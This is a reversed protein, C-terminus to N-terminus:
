KPAEALVGALAPKPQLARDWLLPYNTRYRPWGNLWSRGDDLGWFTVRSIADAHRRFLAFLQAYQDAQRQLLAPPLGHPYPDNEDQEKASVDAGHSQRPVMDLDLETIMVKVGADHFAVISDEIDKYPIKDLEWHGQIGIGDIRVHQKKLHAILQLAKARKAPLEISYDNYYLEAQPDAKSAALFAQAIYDDGISKQWPTPKLYEPGDGLAENVVDWSSVRGKYRAVVTTIHDIMRQLVVERSAPKGQDIFFWSPCLQDWVLCHGNIKLGNKQAFDVFADGQDFTYKGEAPETLIPKLCNEPTVNTFNAVLLKQETETLEPGPIAAGIAFMKGYAEKLTVPDAPADTASLLILGLAAVSWLPLAFRTM